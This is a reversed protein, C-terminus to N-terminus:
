RVGLFKHTQPIIRVDTLYKKCIREFTQCRGIIGRRMHAWDPQLVFTLGPDIRKVLAAARLIDARTTNLSVVVKIFVEKAVAKKLFRAHDAWSIKLGSSSPLKIDMAIVDVFGVIKALADTMLGNTDLHIKFGKQRARPLFAKLFDGQALPEGGTVSLWQCGGSVKVVAKLLQEVTYEKYVGSTTELAQPTDCFSCRVPCGYFRVFTQTQGLYKGEGQISAFIESIRAKIM